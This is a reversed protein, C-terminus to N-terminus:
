LRSVHMNYFTARTTYALRGSEELRFDVVVVTLNRGSRIVSGDVVVKINEPAASLYSISLESLFIDKEKGVVTRACATAVREAVAAVAGGHMGGYPNLIPSKVDLSCSIKGRGTSIVKLVGGILTSFSDKVDHEPKIEYAGGVRDLFQTIANYEEARIDQSVKMAAGIPTEKPTAM